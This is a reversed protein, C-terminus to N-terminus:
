FWLATNGQFGLAAYRTRLCPQVPFVDFYTECQQQRLKPNEGNFKPFENKPAPARLGEEHHDCHVHPIDIQLTKSPIVGTGLAPM